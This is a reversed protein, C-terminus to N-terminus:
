SEGAHHDAADNSSGYDGLDHGAADHDAAADHNAAAAKEFSQGVDAPLEALRAYQSLQLAQVYAAVAWRDQADVQAAYAPMQGFGETMVNVFYGPLANRLREDHFSTPQKFGRQVIMGNGDGVRDHCPTCFMGYRKEGRTLVTRYFTEDAMEEAGTWQARLTELPFAAVPLGNAALGTHFEVDELLQGRAVTHAPLPRSAMGNAFFSSAEYTEYKAQDHMDQRCAVTLLLCAAVALAATETRL